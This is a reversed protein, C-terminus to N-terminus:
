LAFLWVDWLVGLVAWGLFELYGLDLLGYLVM